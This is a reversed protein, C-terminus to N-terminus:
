HTVSSRSVLKVDFVATVTRVQSHQLAASHTLLHTGARVSCCHNQACHAKCWKKTLHNSPYIIETLTWSLNRHDSIWFVSGSQFPLHRSQASHISPYNSLYNLKQENFHVFLFQWITEEPPFCSWFNTRKKKLDWEM